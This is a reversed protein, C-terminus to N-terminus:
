QTAVSVRWRVALDSLFQKLDEDTASEVGRPGVFHALRWAWERYTRETRWSYHKLRLREILRSEWPTKGTDARGLSPVGEPQPASRTRGERFFWNLAAKWAEGDATLGRRLADDVFGRASEVRVQLGNGLCYDLYREIAQAYIYRTRRGLKLPHLMERWNTFLIDPGQGASGPSSDPCHDDPM